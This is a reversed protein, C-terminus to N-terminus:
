IELHSSDNMTHFHYGTANNM